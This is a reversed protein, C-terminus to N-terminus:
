KTELDIDDMKVDKGSEILFFNEQKSLGSYEMEAFDEWITEFSM